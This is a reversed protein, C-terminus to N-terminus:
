DARLGATLQAPVVEVPFPRGALFPEDGTVRASQEYREGSLDFATLEPRGADPVVIWYSPVGFREYVARKTNLDFLATSPSQVEVALLPPETLKAEPVQELRTVVLDPILETSASMWVGPGPLVCLGDPCARDLVIGLKLTVYQHPNSPAPSVILVGDVLEYRRGDSPTRDLDDTTFPEGREPWAEAISVAGM